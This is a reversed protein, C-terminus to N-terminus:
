KIPVSVGSSPSGKGSSPRLTSWVPSILGNCTLLVTSDSSRYMNFPFAICLYQTWAKFLLFRHQSLSVSHQSLSLSLSLSLSILCAPHSYVLISPTKYSGNFLLDPSGYYLIRCLASATLVKTELIFEVTDM